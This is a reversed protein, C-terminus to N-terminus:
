NNMYKDYLFACQEDSYSNVMMTLTEALESASISSLQSKIQELYQILFEEKIASKCLSLLEEEGMQSIYQSLQEESMDNKKTLEKILQSILEEKDTNSLTQNVTYEILDDSPTSAIAVFLESKEEESLTAIYKRFEEAKRSDSLIESLSFDMGLVADHDHLKVSVTCMSKGSNVDDYTDGIYIEGNNNIAKNYWTREDINLIYDEPPLWGTSDIFEKESAFYIYYSGSHSMEFDNKNQESLYKKIEEYSFGKTKLLEEIGYATNSLAEKAQSITEQYEPFVTPINEQNSESSDPVPTPSVTDTHKKDQTTNITNDTNVSDSPANRDETPKKFVLIIIIVTILGVTIAGLILLIISNINKGKNKGPTKPIQNEKNSAANHSM